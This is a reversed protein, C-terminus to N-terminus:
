PKVCPATLELLVPLSAVARATSIDFRERFAGGPAATEEVRGTVAALSLGLASATAEVHRIKKSTSDAATVLIAPFGCKAAAAAPLSPFGAGCGVDVLTAGDRLIVRKELFVLPILSDLIHREAVGRPDLIATLHARASGAVLNEYIGYALRVFADGTLRGDDRTAPCSAAASLYEGAFEDYSVPVVNNM